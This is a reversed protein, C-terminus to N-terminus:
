GNTEQKESALTWLNDSSQLEASYNVQEGKMHTFQIKYAFLHLNRDKNGRRAGYKVDGKVPHGAHALQARIQHFRGRELLVSLISYNELKDICKVHLISKNYGKNPKDMVRAKRYKPDHYLYNELTISEEVWQGEVIACYDKAILGKEQMSLYHQSFDKNRSIIMIGGVPRDLRTLLKLRKKSKKQLVQHLNIDENIQDRQSLMGPPKSVVMYDKEKAIIKIGAKTPKM